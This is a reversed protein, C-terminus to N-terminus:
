VVSKRDLALLRYGQERALAAAVMSDLGGSVLVVALPAVSSTQELTM